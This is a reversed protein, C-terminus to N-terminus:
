RVPGASKRRQKSIHRPSEAGAKGAKRARETLWDSPPTQEMARDWDAEAEPTIRVISTDPIRQERPGHGANRMKYYSSLAIQKRGCFGRISRDNDDTMTTSEILGL